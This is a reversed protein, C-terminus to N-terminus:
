EQMLSLQEDDHFHCLEGSMVSSIHGHKVVSFTIFQPRIVLISRNRIGSRKSIPIQEPCRTETEDCHARYPRNVRTIVPDRNCPNQVLAVDDKVVNWKKTGVVQVSGGSEVILMCRKLQKPSHFRHVRHHTSKRNNACWRDHPHIEWVMEKEDDGVVELLDCGALGKSPLSLCHAPPQNWCNRHIGTDMGNVHSAM